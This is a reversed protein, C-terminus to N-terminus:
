NINVGLRELLIRILDHADDPEPIVWRSGFIMKPIGGIGNQLTQGYIRMSTQLFQGVLPDDMAADFKAQGVLEIAKARTSQLSRPHWENGSEFTFMWDEFVQFSKRDAIWVALGIRALECSNKFAGTNEPIYPNCEKDLPAPFLAFAVRDKSIRIAEDLMFHIKQCHSCQYDFLLTVVFPADPSGILPVNRYDIVPLGSDSKGDAYVASTKLSVQAIAMIGAMFIGTIVLSFLKLRNLGKVTGSTKDENSKGSEKVAQWIILGTILLGTIHATICYPCFAGIFWKQVIMFWVASGAIAGALILMVRWALTRVSNETDNGIFLIAFILALYAGTALGSVPVIGAIKSWHSSLVQECPSGGTCGAIRGGTISHWSMIASLVLAMSALGLLLWRWWPWSRQIVEKLYESMNTLNVRHQFM